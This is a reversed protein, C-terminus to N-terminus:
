TAGSALWAASLCCSVLSTSITRTVRVTKRIYKTRSVTRTISQPGLCCPSKGDGPGSSTRGMGAPCKPCLGNVGLNPLWAPAKREFLPQANHVGDVEEDVTEVDPEDSREFLDYEPQESYVGRKLLRAAVTPSVVVTKRVTRTRKVTIM